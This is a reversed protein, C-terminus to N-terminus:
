FISFELYQSNARICKAVDEPLEWCHYITYIMCDDWWFDTPELWEEYTFPIDNHTEGVLAAYEAHSKDEAEVFKQVLKEYGALRIELTVYFLKM